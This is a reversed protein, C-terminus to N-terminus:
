DQLSAAFRGVLDTLEATMDGDSITPTGDGAQPGYDGFSSHSAGAIEVFATGAPLLGSAESIKEPTSLGDESGAISVAPIGSEAIDGGCYSAFLALADADAAMMCAKVGGLSHGGVIWTDVAPALDTFASLPRLDFVALNLWPKTIVVTLGDEAVVGSLKEAYAWAEVKAGPIYVLGTGVSGAAPSLVIAADTESIRIAPNERVAAVPGPEAAMVGVQSYVLLAGVGLVMAAAVSGLVWRLVRRPRRRTAPSQPDPETPSPEAPQTM